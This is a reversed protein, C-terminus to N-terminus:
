RVKMAFFTEALRVAADESVRLGKVKNSRPDVLVDSASAMSASRLDCDEFRVGAMRCGDFVASQLDTRVFSAETMVCRDFRVKRLALGVFTTYELNCEEFSVDPFDSLASWDIGMLKSRVFRAGRLGLGDVRARTLDSAEITTDEIRTGSWRTGALKCRRLTSRVLEKGGLDVGVLDAGEIEAEEISRAERLDIM